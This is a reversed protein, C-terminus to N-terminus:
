VKVSRLKTKDFNEIAHFATGKEWKDSKVPSPNTEIECQAKEEQPTDKLTVRHIPRYEISFLKRNTQIEGRFWGRNKEYQIIDIRTKNPGPLGYFLYIGNENPTQGFWLPEPVDELSTLEKYKKRAVEVCHMQAENETVAYEKAFEEIGDPGTQYIALVRYRYDLHKNKEASM